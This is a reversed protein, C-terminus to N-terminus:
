RSTDHPHNDCGNCWGNNTVQIGKDCVQPSREKLRLNILTMRELERGLQHITSEQQRVLDVRSCMWKLMRDQLDIIDKKHEEKMKILERYHKEKINNSDLNTGGNEILAVALRSASSCSVSSDEESSGLLHLSLKLYNIICDRKHKVGDLPNYRTGDEERQSKTTTDAEDEEEQTRTNEINSQFTKKRLSMMEINQKSFLMRENTKFIDEEQSHCHKGGNNNNGAYLNDLGGHHLASFNNSTSNILSLNNTRARKRSVEVDDRNGLSEKNHENLSLQKESSSVLSCSSSSSSSYISTTSKHKTRIGSNEEKGEDKSAASYIAEYIEDVLKNAKPPTLILESDSFIDISLDLAESDDTSKTTRPPDKLLSTNLKPSRLEWTSNSNLDLWEQEM